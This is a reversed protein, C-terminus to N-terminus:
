RKRFRDLTVIDAGGAGSQDAEAAPTEADADRVPRPVPLVSAAEQPPAPETAVGDAAPADDDGDALSFQLGFEVGPDAFVKIAQFPISLRQQRGGFSLTVDFRDDGVVLDWFQHQLVITMEQRYRQRQEAPMEVGPHDTRFTIYFHHPEALGHEAADLLVRRVVGMLATEVLKAYEISGEPM